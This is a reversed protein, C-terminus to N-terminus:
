IWKRRSHNSYLRNRPRMEVIQNERRRKEKNKDREILSDLKRVAKELEEENIEGKAYISCLLGYALAKTEINLIM